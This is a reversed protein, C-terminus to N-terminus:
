AGALPEAPLRVRLAEPPLPLLGAALFARFHPRYLRFAGDLIEGTDM